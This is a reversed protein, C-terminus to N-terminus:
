SAVIALIENAREIARKAAAEFDGAVRGLGRLVLPDSPESVDYVYVEWDWEGTGSLRWVEIQIGVDRYEHKLKRCGFNEAVWAATEPDIRPM